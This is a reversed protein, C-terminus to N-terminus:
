RIHGYRGPGSIYLIRFIILILRCIRSLIARACHRELGAGFKATVLDAGFEARTAHTLDIAGAILFQIAVDRDLNQRRREGLAGITQMAKFLFGLSGAREVM